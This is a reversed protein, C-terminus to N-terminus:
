YIVKSTTMLIQTIHEKVWSLFNETKLIKYFKSGSTDKVSL